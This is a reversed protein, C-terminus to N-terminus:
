SFFVKYLLWYLKQEWLKENVYWMLIEKAYMLIRNAVLHFVYLMWPCLDFHVIFELIQM